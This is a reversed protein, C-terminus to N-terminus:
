KIITISLPVGSERFRSQLVCETGKPIESHKKIYRIAAKLSHIPKDSFSQAGYKGILKSDVHVWKNLKPIFFYHKVDISDFINWRKGRWKVTGKKFRKGKPLEYKVKM